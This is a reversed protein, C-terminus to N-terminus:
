RQKIVLRGGESDRECVCIAQNVNLRLELEYDQIYFLGKCNEKLFSKLNSRKYTKETLAERIEPSLFIGREGSERM